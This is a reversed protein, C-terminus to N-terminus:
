LAPTREGRQRAGQTVTVGEESTGDHGESVSIKGPCRKYFHIL